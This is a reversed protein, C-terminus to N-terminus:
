ESPQKRDVFEVYQIGQLNGYKDPIFQPMTARGETIRQANPDLTSELFAVKGDLGFFIGDEIKVVDSLGNKPNVVIRFATMQQRTGRADPKKEGFVTYVGIIGTKNRTQEDNPRWVGGMAVVREPKTNPNKRQLEYLYNPYAQDQSEQPQPTPIDPTGGDM